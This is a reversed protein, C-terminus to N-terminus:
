HAEDPEEISDEVTDRAELSTDLAQADKAIQADIEALIEEDTKEAEVALTEEVVKSEVPPVCGCSEPSIWGEWDCTKAHGKLAVPCEKYKDALFLFVQKGDADVSPKGTSDRVQLFYSLHYNRDSEKDFM